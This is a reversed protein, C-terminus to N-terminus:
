FCVFSIERPSCVYQVNVRGCVSVVGPRYYANNIVLKPFDVASRDFAVVDEHSLFYRDCEGDRVLAILRSYFYNSVGLFRTSPVATAAYGSRGDVYELCSLDGERAAGNRPCWAM